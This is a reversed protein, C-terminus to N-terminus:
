EEPKKGILRIVAKEDAGPYMEKVRNVLREWSESPKESYASTIKDYGWLKEPPLMVSVAM